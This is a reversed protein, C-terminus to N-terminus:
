NPPEPFLRTILLFSVVESTLSALFLKCIYILFNVPLNLIVRDFLYERSVTLCCRLLSPCVRFTQLGIRKRVCLCISLRTDQAFSFLRVSQFFTTNLSSIDMQNDLPFIQRHHLLSSCGTFEGGLVCRFNM